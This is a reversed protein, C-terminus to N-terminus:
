SSSVSDEDKRQNVNMQNIYYHNQNIIVNKSQKKM